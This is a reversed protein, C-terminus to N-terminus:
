FFFNNKVALVQFFRALVVKKKTETIFEFLKIENFLPTLIYKYFITTICSNTEIEKSQLSYSIYNLLVKINVPFKTVSKM